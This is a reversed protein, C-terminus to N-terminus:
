TKPQQSESGIECIMRVDVKDKDENRNIKMKKVVEIGAFKVGFLYFHKSPNHIIEHRTDSYHKEEENHCSIDTSLYGINKKHLFDIDRCDRLGYASLVASSDVCFDGKDQRNDVINKYTRFFDDFKNTESWVRYNLMHVSNQNYISSAIRWTEAQTDNIHVSHKGNGCLERINEKLVDLNSRNEEEVLLTAVVNGETFCYSKKEIVGPLGQEKTGIWPEGYYLNHIYNKQGQDTLEVSKEYVVNVSENILDKIKQIDVDHSPFLSITYLNDKNRCFELAMEDAYDRRLGEKVIDKKNLFYNATCDIQGKSIDSEESLVNKGLAICSAIRHAGNIALGKITPIKGHSEEFGNDKLSQITEEFSELFDKQGDKPPDKEVFGNWVELHHLYLDKAFDSQNNNLISKAYITKAAIDFRNFRLFDSAKKYDQLPKYKEKSRIEKELKVQYTNDVKHDNLPNVLNYAYLMDKVYHSKYSSMELMPFMFALDWAMRYFNGETDLFDEKKIKSWLFYKFTRLHSSCWESERFANNRIVSEPIQRAFKGRQKSPYEIYSGYTMWCKKQNYIDNLKTLVDASAFWDDGDLTVIIDEQKPNSYEIGDYINKLAFSKEERNILVFNDKGEIEKEIIERTSDTSIDNLLICQYNKYKQAM